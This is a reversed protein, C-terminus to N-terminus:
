NESLARARKKPLLVIMRGSDRVQGAIEGAEDGSGYFIDARQAGKIASGTDQAIMLRRLPMAGDKELWVPAGMPVYEPDVAVSRGATIPRSMAGIPGKDEALGDIERFFIYSANHWLMKLGSGPNERVWGKIRQASAEHEQFIGLRIMERGVSRYPHGNRGGFGVRVMKGDDLRIRGSGQIQLFFKEVPDSLWAIELDRGALVGSREIEERSLWMEGRPIDDPKRHIPYQFEGRQRRSGRLEPEYYGTFLPETEGGILVPQFANEFFQRAPGKARAQECVASWEAGIDGCTELFVSRALDHDDRAWGDLDSWDLVTAGAKAASASLVLALAAGLARM